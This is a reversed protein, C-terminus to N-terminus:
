DKIIIEIHRKFQELSRIVTYSFSNKKMLLEWKSQSKSQKGKLTKLEFLFTYSKYLLILDSVGAIVGLRKLRAGARKSRIDGNPVHFLLGRYQPYTNHFWFVIKQQLAEESQNPSDNHINNDNM